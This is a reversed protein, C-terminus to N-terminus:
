LRGPRARACSVAKAADAETGPRVVALFTPPQFITWRATLDAFEDDSPFFITTKPSWSNGRSWFLSRLDATSMPTAAQAAAALWLSLLWAVQIFHRM